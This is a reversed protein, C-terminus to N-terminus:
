CLGPTTGQASLISLEKYMSRLNILLEESQKYISNSVPKYLSHNLELIIDYLDIFWKKIGQRVFM